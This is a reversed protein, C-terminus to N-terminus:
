KALWSNPRAAAISRIPWASSRRVSARPASGASRTGDLRVKYIAADEMGDDDGAHSIYLVQPTGRTICMAIPKGVNGFGSSFTGDADFVQIRRNGAAAAYVRDQADIVLAKVGNFRGPESGTAGWQAIFRGNRDFKAIRNNTGIGDAVYINGARDWAVDTPRNFTRCTEALAKHFV